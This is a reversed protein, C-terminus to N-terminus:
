CIVWRIIQALLYIYFVIITVFAIKTEIDFDSLKM